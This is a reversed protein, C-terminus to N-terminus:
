LIARTAPMTEETTMSARLRAELNEANLSPSNQQDLTMAEPALDRSQTPQGNAIVQEAVLSSKPVNEYCGFDLTPLRYRGDRNRPKWWNTIVCYKLADKHEKGLVYWLPIAVASMKAMRKIGDLNRPCNGDNQIAGVVIPAYWLGNLMVGKSDDFSVLFWGLPSGTKKVSTRAVCYMQLPGNEELEVLIGSILRSSAMTETFRAATKYTYTTRAKAMMDDEQQCYDTCEDQLPITPTDVEGAELTSEDLEQELTSLADPIWDWREDKTPDLTLEIYDLARSKYIRRLKHLFFLIHAPIGNALFPKVKQIGREGM